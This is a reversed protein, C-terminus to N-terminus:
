NDELFIASLFKMILSDTLQAYRIAYEKTVLHLEAGQLVADEQRSTVAVVDAMSMILKCKDKEDISLENVTNIFLEYAAKVVENM